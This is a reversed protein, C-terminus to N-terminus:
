SEFSAPMFVASKLPSNLLSLLMKELYHWTQRSENASIKVKFVKAFEYNQMFHIWKVMNLACWQDRSGACHECKLHIDDHSLYIKRSLNLKENCDSCENWQPLFGIKSLLKILYTHLTVAPSYKAQAYFLTEKLLEYVGEISQESQILRHTAEAIYFLLRHVEPDKQDDVSHLTHIEKLYRLDGKGSFGELEVESLLELRGCFKHHIKRGGKALLDIKGWEPTLITIIRDAENFDVKRIIIGTSKFHQHSM